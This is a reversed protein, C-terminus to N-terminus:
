TPGSSQGLKEDSDIPVRCASEYRNVLNFWSLMLILKRTNDFGWREISLELSDEELTARDALDDAMRAILVIDPDIGTVSGDATLAEVEAKSLGSNLAIRTSAHVAYDCKLRVATRLIMAERLRADAAPCAFVARMLAVAPGALDGTAALAIAGNLTKAPNFDKGFALLGEEDTPMPLCIATM